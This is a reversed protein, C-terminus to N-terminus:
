SEKEVKKYFKSKQQYYGLIFLGQEELSLNKPYPNDDIELKDLIATIRKDSVYGYEAKSIHHNSLRLLIPFTRAPTACASTFYRDKITTNIGPNADEQAKELVAFLRGLVYAKNDSQENLGMNLVEKYNKEPYNRLLIAKIVAAKFYNISQEAKVRALIANYLVMPYPLGQLISRLTSGSLLPSATKENSKPSVTEYLIRWIPISNPENSYQKEIQMYQYHKIFKEVIEGFSNQIFFRISIRAANPSLGLIYFRTREDFIDNSIKVSEGSSIKKFLNKIERVANEDRDYKGEKDQDSVIESPDLLLSICDQYGRNPSEAWFIVTTDGLLFKHANDSLLYNLVTTYAFTAYESVPANLGQSKYNGYSEYAMANFSVLSNGMAQGGIIGKVSPHLIAISSRKGTVLCQRVNESGTEDKYKEWAQKIDSHDHIYNGPKSDLQFVMNTGQIIDEIYKSLVPHEYAKEIEWKKVFNVVAIAEDCNVEELIREHLEKFAQFCNKARDIKGKNDVGFVYTSNDCLFNAKIGVTRKEQEPVIMSIPIFKTGKKDPIRLPIISILEGEKTINLAYSVNVRSYGILPIGSNPDEALIDYYRVL